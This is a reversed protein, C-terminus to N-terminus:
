LGSVIAVFKKLVDGLPYELLLLPAMPLAAALGLELLLRPGVPVWRMDRVLKMSSGFDALAQLDATGLLPEDHRRAGLWKADFASVYESSLAMYDNMGRAQCAWLAPAFVLLPGLFLVVYVLMAVALGPYVASLGIRGAAIEEAFSAALLVSGAAALPMFTSHVVELYGLGGAGDAHTPVLHLKLRSLRWLYHTWLGLRLLWRLMLFRFLPLCVVWYWWATATGAIVTRSPDFGATTGYRLLRAGALGLVVTIGLSIADPIWSDKWRSARGLYADYAPRAGPPVVGTDAVMRAFITVRPDLWAECIFLLPIAVLMRAYGGVLALSFVRDAVGEAVALAVFVVTPLVALVLGLPITNTAGRVLGLRRGLRHLPGGLLSFDAVRKVQAQAAARDVDRPAAV